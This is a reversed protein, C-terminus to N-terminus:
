MGPVDDIEGLIAKKSYLGDLDGYNQLQLIIHYVTFLAKKAQLALPDTRKNKQM